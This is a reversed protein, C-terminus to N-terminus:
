EITLDQVVIPYIQYKFLKMHETKLSVVAVRKRSCSPIYLKWAVTM